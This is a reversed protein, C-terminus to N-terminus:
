STSVEPCGQPPDELSLTSLQFLGHPRAFLSRSQSSCASTGLDRCCYVARTPFMCSSSSQFRCPTSACSEGTFALAWCAVVARRSGKRASSLRVAVIFGRRGDRPLGLRRRTASREATRAAGGFSVALRARLTQGLTLPRAAQADARLAPAKLQTRAALSSTVAIWCGGRSSLAPIEAHWLGM